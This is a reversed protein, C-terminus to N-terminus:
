NRYHVLQYQTNEDFQSFLVNTKLDILSIKIETLKISASVDTESLRKALQVTKDVFSDIPLTVKSSNDNNSTSYQAYYQSIGLLSSITYQCITTVILMNVLYKWIAYTIGLVLLLFVLTLIIQEQPPEQDNQAETHVPKKRHLVM